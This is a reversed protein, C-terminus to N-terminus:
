DVHRGYRLEMQANKQLLEPANAMVKTLLSDIYDELDSQQKAQKEVTDQLSAIM